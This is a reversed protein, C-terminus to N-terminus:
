AAGGAPPGAAPGSRPDAPMEDLLRREGELARLPTIDQTVELTGLYAGDEGRVPFYRIHVFRGGHQIWFEAVQRRGARLDSVIQAVIHLSKPPHCDQVKRGLIARNRAFVRDSGESFWAVRDDADVFTVDFPLANLMAALQPVTVHGSPLRVAEDPTVAAVRAPAAAFGPLWGRAPEVLGPGFEKWERQVAAWDDVSLHEQAMPWLIRDEKDTMSEVRDLLPGLVGIAAARRAEADLAAADAAAARALERAAALHERIEDHVGWMVKPPASLGARELAPFLLYEKRRYHGDVLDLEAQLAAWEADREAPPGAPPGALARYRAVIARLRENERRFTDVPHGAPAPPAAALGAGGGLVAAHVDCMRRIEAEPMGEAMLEGELAPIESAGVADLVGRFEEKLADASEGDHLRRIITKLTDLRFRRNDLLESM